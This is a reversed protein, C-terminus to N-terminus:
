DRRELCMQTQEDAPKINFVSTKFASLVVPRTVSYDKSNPTYLYLLAILECVFPVEQEM